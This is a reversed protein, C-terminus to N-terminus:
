EVVVGQGLHLNTGDGGKRKGQAGVGLGKLPGELRLAVVLADAGVLKPGDVAFAHRGKGKVVEDGRIGDGLNALELVSRGGCGRARTELSLAGDLPQVELVGGAEGNAANIGHVTHLSSTTRRRRRALVHGLAELDLVSRLTLEMM